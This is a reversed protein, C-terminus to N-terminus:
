EVVIKGRMSPHITCRFNFESPVTFQIAVSNGAKLPGTDGGGATQDTITHEVMDSNYFTVTSDARVRLEGPIFEYDKIVGDANAGSGEQLYLPRVRFTWDPLAGAQLHCTACSATTEPRNLYTGDPRYAVYEWEGNRNAGFAEGFGREKRMVFLGPVAAPDKQFRGNAGLIPVGQATQLARWSEMVLVSGYPFNMTDAKVSAAPGNGYITRVTRNDSRDFTNLREFLAEYNTPFGVRDVTPAQSWLLTAPFILISAAFRNLTM